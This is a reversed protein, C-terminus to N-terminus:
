KIYKKNKEEFFNKNLRKSFSKRNAMCYEDWKYHVPGFTEGYKPVGEVNIDDDIFPIPNNSYINRRVQEESFVKNNIMSSTREFKYPNRDCCKKYLLHLEMGRINSLDCLILGMMGYKTHMLELVSSLAIPNGQSMAFAMNTLYIDEEKM